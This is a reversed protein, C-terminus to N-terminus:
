VTAFLKKPVAAPGVAALDIGERELIRASTKADGNLPRKVIPAEGFPAVLRNLRVVPVSVRPGVARKFRTLGNYTLEALAANVGAAKEFPRGRRTRFMVPAFESKPVVVPLKIWDDTPLKELKAPPTEGNIMEPPLAVLAVPPVTVSPVPKLAPTILPSRKPSAEPKLPRKSKGGVPLKVSVLSKIM